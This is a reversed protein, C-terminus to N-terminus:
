ALCHGGIKRKKIAQLQEVWQRNWLFNAAGILRSFEPWDMVVKAAFPYSWIGPSAHKRAPHRRTKQAYKKINRSIVFYFIFLLVTGFLLSRGYSSFSRQGLNHVYSYLVQSYLTCVSNLLLNQSVHGWTTSTTEEKQRMVRHDWACICIIYIYIHVSYLGCSPENSIANCTLIMQDNCVQIPNIGM